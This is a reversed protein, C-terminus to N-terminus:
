QQHLQEGEATRQEYKKKQNQVLKQFVHSKQLKNATIQEKSPLHSLSPNRHQNAGGGNHQSSVNTTDGRSSGGHYAHRSGTASQLTASPDARSRNDHM